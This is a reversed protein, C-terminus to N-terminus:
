FTEHSVLKEGMSLDGVICVRDVIGNLLASNCM